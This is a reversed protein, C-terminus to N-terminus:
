EPRPNDRKKGPYRHQSLHKNGPAGFFTPTAKPSTGGRNKSPNNKGKCKDHLQSKRRAM